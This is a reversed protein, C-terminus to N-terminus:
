YVPSGHRERGSAAQAPITSFHAAERTKDANAHASWALGDM